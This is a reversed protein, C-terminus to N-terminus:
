VWHSSERGGTNIGRRSNRVFPTPFCLSLSWDKSSASL